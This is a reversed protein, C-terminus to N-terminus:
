IEVMKSFYHRSGGLYAVKRVFYGKKEVLWSKGDNNKLWNEYGKIGPGGLNIVFEYGSFLFVFYTEPLETILLDYGFGFRKWVGTYPCKMLTEEPFYQRFYYPWESECKGYRVWDRIRDYHDGLIIERANQPETILFREFLAELAMKALFRSMENKPPNVDVPFVLVNKRLGFADLRDLREFEKTQGTLLPFFDFGRQDRALRLGVEVDTGLSYGQM